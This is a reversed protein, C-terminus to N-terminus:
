KKIWQGRVTYTAENANGHVMQVKFSPPMLVTFHAASGVGYEGTPGPYFLCVTTSVGTIDDAAPCLTTWTQAADLVPNYALMSLDLLLSSGVTVDIWLILGVAWTPTAFESSLLTSTQATGVLFLTEARTVAPLTLMCLVTLLTLLRKM